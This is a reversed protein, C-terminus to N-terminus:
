VQKCNGMWPCTQKQPCNSCGFRRSVLPLLVFSDLVFAALLLLQNWSFSGVLGIGGPILPTLWLPVIVPIHKKFQSAFRDHARRPGLKVALQGYGCPCLRTDYFRCYPCVFHMIWIAGGVGYAAYLGAAPLRWMSDGLGTWFLAAGMVIMALYPINDIIEQRRTVAQVDCEQLAVPSSSETKSSSSRQLEGEKAAAAPNMRRGWDTVASSRIVGGQRGECCPITLM